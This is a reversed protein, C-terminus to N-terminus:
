LLNNTGTIYQLDKTSIIKRQCTERSNVNLKIEPLAEKVTTDEKTTVEKAFVVTLRGTIPLFLVFFLMFSLVLLYKRAKPYSM